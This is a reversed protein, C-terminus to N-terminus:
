FVRLFSQSMSEKVRSLVERGVTRQMFVEEGALGLDQRWEKRVNPPYPHLTSISGDRERTCSARWCHEPVVGPSLGIAQPGSPSYQCHDSAM